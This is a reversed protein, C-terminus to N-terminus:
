YWILDWFAWRKILFATSQSSSLVCIHFHFTAVSAITSEYVSRSHNLVCDFLGSGSLSLSAETLYSFLSFPKLGVAIKTGFNNGQKIFHNIEEVYHFFIINELPCSCLDSYTRNWSVVYAGCETTFILNHM